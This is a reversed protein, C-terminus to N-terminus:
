PRTSRAAHSPSCAASSIRPRPKRSLRAHGLAVVQVGAFCLLPKILGSTEINSQITLKTM